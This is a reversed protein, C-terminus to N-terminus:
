IIYQVQVQILIIDIIELKKQIDEKKIISYSGTAREKSITQYGTVVVEELQSDSHMAVDRSVDSNGQAITVYANEMGVYSFKLVTKEVPIKFTYFGDADTVTCVRSEGICVPVGVLPEGSDDRVYGKITRERGSVKQKSITVINGKITYECGILSAIQAVVESAPKKTMRITIRPWEKSVETSYFFNLGSQKQVEKLVTTVQESKFNISVPTNAPMAANVSVSAFFLLLTLLMLRRIGRLPDTQKM